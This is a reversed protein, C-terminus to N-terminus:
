EKLFEKPNIAKFKFKGERKKERLIRKVISRKGKKAKMEPHSKLIARVRKFDSQHSYIYKNSDLTIQKNIQNVKLRKFGKQWDVLAICYRPSIYNVM